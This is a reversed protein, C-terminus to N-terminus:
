TTVYTISNPTKHLIWIFKYIEFFKIYYVVISDNSHYNWVWLEINQSNKKREKLSVSPFNWIKYEIWNSKTRILLSKHKKHTHPFTSKKKLSFINVVLESGYFTIDHRQSSDFWFFTPKLPKTHCAIIIWNATPMRHCELILENVRLWQSNNKNQESNCRKANTRWM